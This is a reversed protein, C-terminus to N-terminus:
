ISKLRKKTERANSELFWIKYEVELDVKYDNLDRVDAEIGEHELNLVDKNEKKAVQM